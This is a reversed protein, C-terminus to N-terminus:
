RKFRPSEAAANDCVKKLQCLAFQTPLCSKATMMFDKSTFYISPDLKGDEPFPAVRCDHVVKRISIDYHLKKVLWGVAQMSYPTFRKKAVRLEAISIQGNHDTDVYNSLCQVADERSFTCYGFTERIGWMAFANPSFLVVLLLLIMEIRKLKLYVLILSFYANKELSQM